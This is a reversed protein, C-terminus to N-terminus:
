RCCAEFSEATRRKSNITFILILAGMLVTILLLLLLPLLLRSYQLSVTFMLFSIQISPFRKRRRPYGTQAFYGVCRFWYFHGPLLSALTNSSIIIFTCTVCQTKSKVFGLPVWDTRCTDSWAEGVTTVTYLISCWGRGWVFGVWWRSRRNSDLNVQDLRMRDLECDLKLSDLIVQDLRM